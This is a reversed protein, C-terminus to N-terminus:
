EADSENDRLRCQGFGTMYVQYEQGKEGKPVVMFNDPRVDQNLIDNDGLIHVIEIAQDIIDQWSSQPANGAITSLPFGALYEPLIGKM